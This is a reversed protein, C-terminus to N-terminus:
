SVGWDAQISPERVQTFVAVPRPVTLLVGRVQVPVNSLDVTFDVRVQVERYIGLDIALAHGLCRSNGWRGMCATFNMM